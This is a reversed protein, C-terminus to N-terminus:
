KFITFHSSWVTCWGRGWNWDSLWLRDLGLNWDSLGFNLVLLINRYLTCSCQNLLCEISWKLSLDFRTATKEFIKGLVFGFVVVIGIAKVFENTELLM